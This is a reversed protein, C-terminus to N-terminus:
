VLADSTPLGAAVAAAECRSCVMKTNNLESHFTFISPDGSHVNGCWQKIAVHPTAHVRYTTVERPRHILLARQNDVFPACSEWPTGNSRAFSTIKLPTLMM